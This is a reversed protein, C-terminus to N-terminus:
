SPQETQPSQQKGRLALCRGHGGGNMQNQGWALPLDELRRDAAFGSSLDRDGQPQPILGDLIIQRRNVVLEAHGAALLEACFEATSWAECEGAARYVVNSQGSAVDHGSAPLDSAKLVIWLGVCLWIGTDLAKVAPLDWQADRLPAWLTLRLLFPWIGTRRTRVAHIWLTVFPVTMLPADFHKRYTWFMTLVAAISALPLLSSAQRLRRAAVAM